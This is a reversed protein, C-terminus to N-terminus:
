GDSQWFHEIKKKGNKGINSRKLKLFIWKKSKGSKVFLYNFILSYPDLRSDWWRSWNAMTSDQIRTQIHSLCYFVLHAPLLKLEPHIDFGIYLVIMCNIHIDSGLYVVSGQLVFYWLTSLCLLSFNLDFCSRIWCVSFLFICALSGAWNPCVLGSSEIM